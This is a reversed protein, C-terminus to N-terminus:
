EFRVGCSESGRRYIGGQRTANASMWNLRWAYKCQLLSKRQNSQRLRRLTVYNQDEDHVTISQFSYPVCHKMAAHLRSPTRYLITRAHTNSKTKTTQSIYLEFEAKYISCLATTGANNAITSVLDYQLATSVVLLNAFWTKLIANTPKAIDNAWATRRRTNECNSKCGAAM